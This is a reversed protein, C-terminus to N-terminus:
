LEWGQNETQLRTMREFLGGRRLLEGPAGQEAVSGGSLVVIKDADAVTRLRHAIVLVTKDRILRSLASQIQSENEVDLAATAEDLLVIPADKLLARAISIRQREGGSLERGNEGIMTRWGDPLKEVFEDCHALRGAAIVEDDSAGRRGIRINEMVTNNFLTVDQFVISFLSLLKEPAIEAVNEGGVAIRGGSVDWFRAALRSATTKGGGSPGVLATVEGQRATFSVDKLVSVGSEYAFDVHEFVIDYGRPAMEERGGQVPGDLIENMREINTRTAIAAVLNQLAAELPAYLRSAAMLFMFLTMVDLEGRGILVAGTLTTSAIGLRLLLSALTVFVALCFESHVARREVNGIKEDLGALYADEANNSKLDRLCELCEQIGDACAINAAMAKRGMWRQVRASCMIIAFAPPLVWLAALAMRRDFAFLGLAIATTSIMAGILPSVYHSQSQELVSCDNMVASSLDALDKQGFFSLPLRRLKEALAIRRVGSEEYTSLYSGNYQFWTAVVIFLLCGACGAAYPAARGAAAGAALARVFSFLLGAPAIFSINQLAQYLCSKVFEGAGHESLALRRRIKEMLM